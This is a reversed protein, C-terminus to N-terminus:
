SGEDLEQRLCKVLEAPDNEVAVCGAEPLDHAQRTICLIPLRRRAERAGHILRRRDDKSLTHCLVLVDISDAKVLGLAGLVNYAEDVQFGAERLVLSRSRMLIRDYGVSLLHWGTM